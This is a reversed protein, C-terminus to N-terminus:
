LFKGFSGRIMVYTTTQTMHVGIYNKTTTSLISIQIIIQIPESAIQKVPEPEEDSESESVFVPAPTPERKVVPAPTPVPKVEPAPTPQPASQTEEKVFRRRYLSMMALVEGFDLSMIESMVTDQYKRLELKKVCLERVNPAYGQVYQANATHTVPCSITVKHNVEFNITFQVNCQYIQLEAHTVPFVVECENVFENKWQKLKFLLMEPIVNPSNILEGFIVLESALPQVQPNRSM